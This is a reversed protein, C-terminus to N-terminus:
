FLTIRCQPINGYRRNFNISLTFCRKFNHIILVFLGIDRNQIFDLLIHFRFFNPLVLNIQKFLIFGSLQGFLCQKNARLFSNIHFEFVFTNPFDEFLSKFIKQRPNNHFLKELYPTKELM